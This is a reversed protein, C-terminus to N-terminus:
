DGFQGALEFGRLNRNAFVELDQVRVAQHVARVASSEGGALAREFIGGQAFFFLQVM